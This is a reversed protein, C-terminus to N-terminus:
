AKHTLKGKQTPTWRVNLMKQKAERLDPVGKGITPNTICASSTIQNEENAASVAQTGGQHDGICEKNQDAKGCPEPNDESREEDDHCAVFDFVKVNHLQCKTLSELVKNVDSNSKEANDETATDLGAANVQSAVVLEVSNKPNRKDDLVTDDRRGGFVGSSQNPLARLWPGYPLNDTDEDSCDDDKDDCEKLTHDLKGCFYCLNGLREYKFFVRIPDRDGRKIMMGRRIAKTIDLSVRVRICSGVKKDDSSDWRVSSGINNGIMRAISDTRLAIPIDYVRVWFLAEKLDEEKPNEELNMEKLVVLAPNRGIDRIELGHKPKWANMMKNKFARVNYTGQTALRGMLWADSEKVCADEPVIVEVEEEESFVVKKWREM